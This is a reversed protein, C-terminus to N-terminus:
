EKQKSSCNKVIRLNKLYKKWLRCMMRYPDIWLIFSKLRVKTRESAVYLSTKKLAFTDCTTVVSCAVQQITESIANGCVIHLDTYM